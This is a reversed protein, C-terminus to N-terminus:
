IICQVLRKMKCLLLRMEIKEPTNVFKKESKFRKFKKKGLVAKHYDNSSVKFVAKGGFMAPPKRKLVKGGMMLPDYGAVPEGKASSLGQFGGGVSMAPAEENIFEKFKKM